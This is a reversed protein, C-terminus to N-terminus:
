CPDAWKMPPLSQQELSTEILREISEITVLTRRGIRVRCLEGERLLAFVTTKGVGLAACTQEIGFLM